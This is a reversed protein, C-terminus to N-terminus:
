FIVSIKCHNYYFPMLGGMLMDKVEEDSYANCSYYLWESIADDCDGCERNACTVFLVVSIGVLQIKDTNPDLYDLFEFLIDRCKVIVASLHARNVRSTYPSYRGIDDLTVVVREWVSEIWSILKVVANIRWSYTKQNWSM